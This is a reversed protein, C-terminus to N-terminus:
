KAYEAASKAFEPIFPDLAARAQAATVVDSPDLKTVTRNDWDIYVNEGELLGDENYPWLQMAQVSIVYTADQDDVNEGMGALMSGPVLQHLLMDGSIGWDAVALREHESFMVNSGAVANQEYFGMVAERGTLTSAYPGGRFHYIPEPVTMEVDFIYPWYGAVECSAHLLYNELIARHRPNETKELLETSAKRCSLPDLKM